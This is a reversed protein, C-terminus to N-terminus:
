VSVMRGALRAASFCRLDPRQGVQADHDEIRVLEDVNGLEILLRQSHRETIPLGLIPRFLVTPGRHSDAVHSQRHSSISMADKCGQLRSQKERVKQRNSIALFALICGFEKLHMGHLARVPFCSTPTVSVITSKTGKRKYLQNEVTKIRDPRPSPHCWAALANKRKWRSAQVLSVKAGIGQNLIMCIPQRRRM